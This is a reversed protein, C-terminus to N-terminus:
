QCQPNPAGLPDSYDVGWTLCYGEAIACIEQVHIECISPSDEVEINGGVYNLTPFLHFPMYDNNIDIESIILHGGISELSEMGLASDTTTDGGGYIWFTGGIERLNSFSGLDGEDTYDGTIDLDFNDSIIEITSVIGTLDPGSTIHLGDVKCYYELTEPSDAWIPDGVELIGTRYPCCETGECHWTEDEDEADVEIACTTDDVCTTGESCNIDEPYVPALMEVWEGNECVRDGSLCAFGEEDHTGPGDYFSENTGSICEVCSENHCTNGNGCSLGETSPLTCNRPDLVTNSECEGSAGCTYSTITRSQTGERSCVNGADVPECSSWGSFETEPCGTDECTLEIEECFEGDGEYGPSCACTYSGPTNTCTANEDCSNLTSNLCEDIDECTTGDFEYGEDCDCEYSGETNVCVGEGCISTDNACENIDVCEHDVPETGTGCSLAVCSSENCTENNGCHNADSCEVCQENVCVESCTNECTPVPEECLSHDSCDVVENCIDVVAGCVSNEDGCIEDTTRDEECPIEVDEEVDTDEVVDEEVPDTDEEVDEEVDNEPEEVDEEVDTDSEEEVDHGADAKEDINFTDEESPGTITSPDPVCAVTFLVTVFTVITILINRTINRM